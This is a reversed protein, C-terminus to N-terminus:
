RWRRRLRPARGRFRWGRRSGEGARRVRRCGRRGRCSSVGGRRRRRPWGRLGDVAVPWAWRRLRVHGPVEGIGGAALFGALGDGLDGLCEVGGLAGDVPAEEGSPERGALGSGPAGSRAASAVVRALASVVGGDSGLLLAGDVLEEAALEGVAVEGEDPAVADEGPEVGEAEATRIAAADGPVLHEAPGSVVAEGQEMPGEEVDRAGGSDPSRRQGGGEGEGSPDKGSRSRGSRGREPRSVDPGSGCRLSGVGRRGHSGRATSRVGEGAGGNANRSTPVAGRRVNRVNTNNSLLCGCGVAGGGKRARVKQTGLLPEALVRRRV